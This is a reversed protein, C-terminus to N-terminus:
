APIVRYWDTNYTETVDGRQITVKNGSIRVIHGTIIAKAQM